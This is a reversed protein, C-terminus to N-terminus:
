VGVGTAVVLQATVIAAVLFVLVALLSSGSLSAIGCIGHGSTCGNGLRAGFGAIFGGVALQWWSVKTIVPENDSVVFWLATGLILGLAYVMRWNRSKLQKDQQFFPQSSVYSWATSFVSSMGGILGTLLYLLSVAAGIALGGVIYHEMGQPFYSNLFEM